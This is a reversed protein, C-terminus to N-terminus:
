RGRGSRAQRAANRVAQLDILETVVYENFPERRRVRLVPPFGGARGHIEALVLAAVVSHGPLNVVIPRTQWEDARFGVADVLARAQDAFAADDDLLAPRDIVHEVPAGLLREIEKLQERTLPHTLNVLVVGREGVM